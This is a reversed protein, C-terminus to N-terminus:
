NIVYASINYNNHGIFLILISEYDHSTNSRNKWVIQRYKDVLTQMVKYASPPKFDRLSKQCYKMELCVSVCVSLPITRNIHRKIVPVVLSSNTHLHDLSELM